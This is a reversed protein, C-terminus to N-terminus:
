KTESINALMFNIIDDFTLDKELKLSIRRKYSSLKDYTNKSLQITTIEKIM